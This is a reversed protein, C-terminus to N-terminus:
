KLLRVIEDLKMGIWVVSALFGIFMAIWGIWYQLPTMNGASGM